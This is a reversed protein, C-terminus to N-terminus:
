LACHNSRLSERVGLSTRPTPKSLSHRPLVAGIGYTAGSNAATSSKTSPTSSGCATMTAAFVALLSATLVKHFRKSRM